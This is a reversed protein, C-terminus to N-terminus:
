PLIFTMSSNTPNQSISALFRFIMELCPVIRCKGRTRCRLVYWVWKLMNYLRINILVHLCQFPLAWQVIKWVQFRSGVLDHVHWCCRLFKALLTVTLYYNYFFDYQLVLTSIRGFGTNEQSHTFGALQMNKWHMCSNSFSLKLNNKPSNKSLKQPVNWHPCNQLGTM